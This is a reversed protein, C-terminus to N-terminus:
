GRGRGHGRGRVRGRGERFSGNNGEAIQAVNLRPSFFDSGLITKTEDEIEKIRELLSEANQLEERLEAIKAELSLRIFSTEAM